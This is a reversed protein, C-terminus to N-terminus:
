LAHLVVLLAGPHHDPSTIGSHRQQHHVDDTDTTPLSTPDGGPPVYDLEDNADPELFVPSGIYLDLPLEFQPDDPRLSPDEDSALDGWPPPPADPPPDTQARSPSPHFLTALVAAALVAIRCLVLERSRAM